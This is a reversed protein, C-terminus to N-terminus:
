CASNSDVKNDPTTVIGTDKGGQILRFGKKLFEKYREDLKLKRDIEGVEDLYVERMYPDKGEFLLRSLQERRKKLSVIETSVLIKM